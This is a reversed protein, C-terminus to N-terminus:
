LCTGSTTATGTATGAVKEAVGAQWHSAVDAMLCRTAEPSTPKLLRAGQLSVTPNSADRFTSHICQIKLLHLFIPRKKASSTYMSRLTSVLIAGISIQTPSTDSIDAVFPLM